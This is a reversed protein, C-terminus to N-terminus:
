GSDERVLLARRITSYSHTDWVSAVEYTKSDHVVRDEISIAQDYPINLVFLSKGELAAANVGESGFNQPDLRCAVSTYTNAWSHAVGGVAGASETKAQITCTDPFFDDALTRMDTLEQASLATM